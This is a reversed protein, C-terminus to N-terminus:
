SSNTKLFYKEAHKRYMIPIKFSVTESALNAKLLSITALLTNGYRKGSLISFPSDTTWYEATIVSIRSNISRTSVSCLAFNSCNDDMCFSCLYINKTKKKWITFFSMFYFYDQERGKIKDGNKIIVYNYLVVNYYRKKCTQM